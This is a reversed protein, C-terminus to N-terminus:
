TTINHRKRLHVKLEYKRSLQQRCIPCETEGTHIKYHLRLSDPHKYVKTCLECEYTHVLTGDDQQILRVGGRGAVWVQCECYWTHTWDASLINNFCCLERLKTPLMDLWLPVPPYYYVLPVPPYYYVLPVAPYYYVLPVPPYYTSPRGSALTQFLRRSLCQLDVNDRKKNTAELKKVPYCDILRATQYSAGAVSETIWRNKNARFSVKTQQSAVGQREGEQGGDWLIPKLSASSLALPRLIVSVLKSKLLAVVITEEKTLMMEGQLMKPIKTLQKWIIKKSPHLMNVRLM